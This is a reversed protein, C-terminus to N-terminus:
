EGGREGVPGMEREELFDELVTWISATWKSKLAPLIRVQSEGGGQCLKWPVLVDIWIQGGSEESLSWLVALFVEIGDFCVARLSPHNYFEILVQRKRSEYLLSSRM